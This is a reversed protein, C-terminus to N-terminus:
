SLGFRKMMRWVTTRNVDLHRAVASKNWQFRDLLEKLQSPTMTASKQELGPTGKKDNCFQNRLSAQRIEVPLDFLDVRGEKRIVFAHEIANELERVNGPWCYDMLIMAAEETLGAIKRNTDLNFKSIFHDVLIGIDEKRERLPPLRVPFVKLRYYLDERFKGESVLTRLDKNSASIVRVDSKRVKSEGVREFEREQLFRLLKLQILPSIESIEDLFLTGKDALEFRGARDKIAGTFAGKVHGFLESELLSEPLASCNIKVLPKSKRLGTKHIAGVVMEKGTGSEGSILISSDSSAAMNILEFVEQMPRSKGVINNYSERVKDKKQLRVLQREVKKLSSMDTLTEVFGIVKGEKDKIVQANRLVPVKHGKKHILECEMRNMSGNTKRICSLEDKEKACVMFFSCTKGIINEVQHGTLQGMAKNCFLINGELDGIFVGEAMTQLVLEFFDEGGFAQLSEKYDM